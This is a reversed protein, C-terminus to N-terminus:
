KRKKRRSTRKEWYAIQKQRRREEKLYWQLDPELTWGVLGKVDVGETDVGSRELKEAQQAVKELLTKEIYPLLDRGEHMDTLRTGPRLLKLRQVYLKHVEDKHDWVLLYLHIIAYRADPYPPYRRSLWLFNNAFRFWKINSPPKDSRTWDFNEYEDTLHQMWLKKTIWATQPEPVPAKAPVKKRKPPKLLKRVRRKRAASKKPSPKRRRFPVSEALRYVYYRYAPVRVRKRTKLSKRIYGPVFIRHRLFLQWHTKTFRVVSLPLVSLRFAM